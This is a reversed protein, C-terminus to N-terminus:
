CNLCKEIPYSERHPEWARVVTPARHEVLSEV